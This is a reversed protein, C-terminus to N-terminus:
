RIGDTIALPMLLTLTQVASVRKLVGRTENSLSVKLVGFKIKIDAVFGELISLCMINAVDEGSTLDTIPLADLLVPVPRDVGVEPALWLLM